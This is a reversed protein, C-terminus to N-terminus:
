DPRTAIALLNDKGGPVLYHVAVKARTTLAARFSPVSGDGYGRPYAMFDELREILWGTRTLLDGLESATYERNHRHFLGNGAGDNDFYADVPYMVSRGLMLRLRQRASALNPTTVLLHGQVRAVRRFERLAAVPSHPRHEIVEAFLVLDFYEDPWPLPETEVNVGAMNPHDIPEHASTVGYIEHGLIELAAFM